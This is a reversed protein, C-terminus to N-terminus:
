YIACRVLAWVSPSPASRLPLPDECASLLPQVKQAGSAIFIVDPKGEGGHVTYLGKMVGEKSTGPQNPMGQRSFAMVSPRPIGEPNVAKANLVAAQMRLFPPGGGCIVIYRPRMCASFFTADAHLRPVGSCASGCAHANRQIKCGGHSRHAVKCASSLRQCHISVQYAGATENGDGPRLMLINPMARFSALHEVPQHTPGDEGLGISDHTMVFLTGCHSLAAMRIAARMYDARSVCM